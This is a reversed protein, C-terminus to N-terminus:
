FYAFTMTYDIDNIDYFVNIVCIVNSMPMRMCTLIPTLCLMPVELNCGATKSIKTYKTLTQPFLLCQQFVRRM